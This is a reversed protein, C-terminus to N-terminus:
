GKILVTIVGAAEIFLIALYSVTFNWGLVGYFYFASLGALTFMLICIALVSSGIVLAQRM